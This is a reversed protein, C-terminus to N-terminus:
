QFLGEFFKDVTEELVEKQEENSTNNNQDSDIKQRKKSRNEEDSDSSGSEDRKRKRKEKEERKRKKKEEKLRKKEKKKDAKYNMKKACEDCLRIKVLANKKEGAEVYGFNVEYSKLGNRENCAKNGCIFQGKGEFVEKQTRWRLGIKGEKYRSFDGICYEKFLKDYYQKAVRKEWVGDDNDSATRVFRYEERLMDMDSKFVPQPAKLADPGGYFLVYDEIFKKHREYANLKSISQAYTRRRERDKAADYSKVANKASNDQVPPKKPLESYLESTKHSQELETGYSGQIHARAQDSM